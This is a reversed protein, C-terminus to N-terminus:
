LNPDARVYCGENDSNERRINGLELFFERYSSEKQRKNRSKKSTL